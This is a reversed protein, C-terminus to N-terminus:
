QPWTATTSDSSTAGPQSLIMPNVGGGAGSGGGRLGPLGGRVYAMRHSMSFFDSGRRQAVGSSTDLPAIMGCDLAATMVVAAAM